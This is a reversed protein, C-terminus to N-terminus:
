RGSADHIETQGTTGPAAACAELLEVLRRSTETWSRALAHRRVTDRNRPRRLQTLAAMALDAADDMDVTCGVEDSDVVETVGGVRSALVPTGCAMSELLVNPLGERESALVTLDAANYWRWLCENDVQGAFHVRDQVGAEHACRELAQRQPGEGVIALGAHPFDHLISALARITLHHRKVEVLNGVSLLLPQYEMGLQRRAEGRDTPRFRAADVGNRVVTIASQPVGIACLAQALAASVCISRSAVGAAWRMMARPLAFHAIQNIDSGRATIVLPRKFWRALLAAAVGDPYYYHADIIDFDFGERRMQRLAPVAALALAPPAVNMGIKPLLPYRPHLVHIGHRVEAAPTASLRAFVGWHPHRSPFWAVPAVVRAQVNDLKLLERLRTEVFIGHLPRASSPYLTSFVLARVPRTM